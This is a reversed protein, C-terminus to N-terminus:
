ETAMTRRHPMRCRVFIGPVLNGADMRRGAQQPLTDHEDGPSNETRVVGHFCAGVREAETAGARVFFGVGGPVEATRVCGFLM